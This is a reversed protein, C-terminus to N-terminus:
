QGAQEPGQREHGDEQGDHLDQDARCVARQRAAGFRFRRGDSLDDGGDRRFIRGSLLRGSDGSDVREALAAAWAGVEVMQGNPVRATGLPGSTQDVVRPRGPDDMFHLSSTQAAKLRAEMWRLSGTRPTADAGRELGAGCAVPDHVRELADADPARGPEAAPAVRDHERPRQQLVWCGQAPWRGSGYRARPGFWARRPDKLASLPKADLPHNRM